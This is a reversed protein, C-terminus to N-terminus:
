APEIRFLVKGFEVPQANEALIEVVKGSVESEIENMLKMAEIICLVKGPNVTDGQEVYPKADPAPARYFTGVMPATVEILEKGSKKKEPEAPKEAYSEGVSPVSVPPAAGQHATHEAPHIPAPIQVFHPVSSHAAANTLNKKIRLTIGEQEIELESIESSEVLKVLKKIDQYGFKNM